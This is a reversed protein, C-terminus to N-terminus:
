PTSEKQLYYLKPAGNIHATVAHLTIATVIGGEIQEGVRYRRGGIIAIKRDGNILILTVYPEESLEGPLTKDPAKGFRFPDRGPEDQAHAGTAVLLTLSFLIIKIM